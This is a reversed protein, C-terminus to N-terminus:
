KAQVEAIGTEERRWISLGPAGLALVGLMAPAHTPTPQMSTEHSAKAEGVIDGTIIPKNPITEYAYGTLTATFGFFGGTNFRAWGFHTKGGVVFKLGVYRHQLNRWPGYSRYSGSVEAFEAMFSLPGFQPSPGLRVGAPMASVWHGASTAWVEHGPKLRRVMFTASHYGTRLHFRFDPKGNKDVDLDYPQGRSIVVNARTYVIKASAPQAVALMGVGAAGAALAYMNLQQHVSNSLNAATRSASSPEMFNRALHGNDM